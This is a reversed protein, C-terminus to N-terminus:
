KNRSPYYNKKLKIREFETKTTKKLSQSPHQPLSPLPFAFLDVM